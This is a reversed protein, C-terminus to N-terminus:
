LTTCTCMNAATRPTVSTLLIVTTTQTQLLQTTQTHCGGILLWLPLHCCKALYTVAGRCGCLVSCHGTDTGKGVNKPMCRPSADASARSNKLWAHQSHKHVVAMCCQQRTSLGVPVANDRATGHLRGCKANLIATADQFLALAQGDVLQLVLQHLCNNIVLHAHGGTTGRAGPPVPTHVGPTRQRSM